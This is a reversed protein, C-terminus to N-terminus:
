NAKGSKEVAKPRAYRRVRKQLGFFQGGPNEGPPDTDDGNVLERQEPAKPSFYGQRLVGGVEVARFRHLGAYVAHTWDPDRTMDAPKVGYKITEAVAARFALREDDPFRERLSKSPKVRQVHVQPDYDLQAARRWMAVWQDQRVYYKTFYGAPVLMLVHLHPHCYDSGTDGHSVELTRVWGKAPWRKYKTLRRLSRTLYRATEGLDSVPSNRVTLTLSVWRYTPFDSEIRPLGNMARSWWMLSKRWQCTFCLRHRCFRAWRLALRLDGDATPVWGYELVDSCGLIRSAIRGLVRNGSRLFFEVQHLRDEAHKDWRSKQPDLDSLFEWQRPDFPEQPAGPPGLDGRSAGLRDRAVSPRPTRM